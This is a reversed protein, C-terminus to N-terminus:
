THNEIKANRANNMVSKIGNEGSLETKYRESTGVIPGNTAKSNFM